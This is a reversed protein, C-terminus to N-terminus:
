LLLPSRSRYVNAATMLMRGDGSGLDFVTEGPMVSALTLKKLIIDEPTPIHPETYNM